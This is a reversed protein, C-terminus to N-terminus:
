LVIGRARVPSPMASSKGLGVRYPTGMTAVAIARRRVPRPILMTASLSLMSRSSRRVMPIGRTTASMIPMCMSVATAFAVCSLTDAEFYATFFTRREGQQSPTISNVTHGAGPSGDVGQSLSPYRTQSEVHAMDVLRTM